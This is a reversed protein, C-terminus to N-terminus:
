FKKEFYIIIVKLIRIKSLSSILQPLLVDFSSDFTCIAQYGSQVPVSDLYQLKKPKEIGLWGGDAYGWGYMQHNLTVAFSWTPGCIVQNIAKGNM